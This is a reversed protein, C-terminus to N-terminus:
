KGEKNNCSCNMSFYFGRKKGIEVKEKREFTVQLMILDMFDDGDRTINTSSIYNQNQSLVMMEYQFFDILSSNRGSSKMCNRSYGLCIVIKAFTVWLIINGSLLWYFSRGDTEAKRLFLAVIQVPMKSLNNLHIKRFM